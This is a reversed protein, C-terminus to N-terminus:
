GEQLPVGVKGVVPLLMGHCNPCPVAGWAGLVAAVDPAQWGYVDTVLPVFERFFFRCWRELRSVLAEPNGLFELHQEDAILRFVTGQPSPVRIVELIRPFKGLLLPPLVVGRGCLLIFPEEAPDELSRSAFRAPLPHLLLLDPYIDFLLNRGPDMALDFATNAQGHRDWPRVARLSWLLRLRALDDAQDERLIEGLAPSTRAAEILNRLEFGAEFAIECLRVRLRALEARSRNGKLCGELLGDAYALPLRGRFCREVEKVVLTLPDEGRQVADALALRRLAALHRAGGFGLRVVRETRPLLQKLLCQRAQPTGCELSVLALSALFASDELLFGDAHLRPVMWRWALDVAQDELPPRLWWALYVCLALLLAGALLVMVPLIPAPALFAVVLASFVLPWALFTLAGQFTWPRGPLRLQQCSRGPLEIELRRFLGNELIECRYGASSLRGRNVSM